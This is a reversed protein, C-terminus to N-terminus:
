HCLFSSSRSRAHADRYPVYSGQAHFSAPPYPSRATSPSRQRCISSISSRLPGPRLCVQFAQLACRATIVAIVAASHIALLGLLLLSQRHLNDFFYRAIESSILRAKCARGVSPSAALAPRLSRTILRLSALVQDHLIRGQNVCFSFTRSPADSFSNWGRPFRLPYLRAFHDYNNLHVTRRAIPVTRCPLLQWTPPVFPFIIPISGQFWCVRNHRHHAAPSGITSGSRRLPLPQAKLPPTVLFWSRRAPPHGYRTGDNVGSFM